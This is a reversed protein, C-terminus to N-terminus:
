IHILSLVLGADPGIADLMADSLTANTGENSVMELDAGTRAAMDRWVYVNSPFQDAMTVITQGASIEINKAATAMGYSVSPVFAIGDTDANILQALKPRIRVTDKFFDSSPIDWPQSKRALGASGAALGAKPLPSMTACNLYTVDDPIDFLHRQSPILDTM